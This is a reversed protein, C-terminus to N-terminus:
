HPEIASRAFLNFKLAPAFKSNSKVLVLATLTGLVHPTVDARIVISEGPAVHRPYKSRFHISWGGSASDILPHKITVSSASTNTVIIATSQTVNTADFVLIPFWDQSVRLGYARTARFAITTLPWNPDNSYISLGSARDGEKKGVWWVVPINISDNPAVNGSSFGITTCGCLPEIRSIVLTDDGRNHVTIRRSPRDEHVTGWDIARSSGVDIRPQAVAWSSMLPILVIYVWPSVASNITEMTLLMPCHPILGLTFSLPGGADSRVTVFDLFRVRRSQNSGSM